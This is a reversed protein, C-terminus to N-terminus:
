IREYVTNCQVETSKILGKDRLRSLIFNVNNKTKNTAIAIDAITHKRDCMQLVRNEERGIIPKPLARKQLNILIDLKEDISKLSAAIADLKKKEM